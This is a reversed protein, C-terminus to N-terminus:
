AGTLPEIPARSGTGRFLRRTLSGAYSQALRFPRYLYYLPQLTVPLALSQWDSLTPVFVVRLISAFVDRKRDMIQLNNKIARASSFELQRKNFITALTEVAFRRMSSRPDIEDLIAGPIEVDGLQAALNLGLAFMKLGHAARAREILQNWDIDVRGIIETLSAIWELRSWYHKGGHMCQFLILDEVDFTSFRQGGVSMERSRALVDGTNLDFPFAKPALSWHLDVVTFWNDRMFQIECHFNLHARQQAPTLPPLMQYGHSELLEKARDFHEREILIDVDGAQRLSNEGYALESLIPGKFVLVPLQQQNFAQLLEALRGLLTLVLQCNYVSEGKIAALYAPPVENSFTNLHRYL